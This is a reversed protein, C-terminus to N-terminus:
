VFGAVAGNPLRAIKRKLQVGGLAADILQLRFKLSALIAGRPGLFPQGQNVLLDLFFEDARALLGMRAISGEAVTKSSCMVTGVSWLLRLMMGSATGHHSPRRFCSSAAVEKRSHFRRVGDELVALTRGLSASAIERLGIAIAHAM